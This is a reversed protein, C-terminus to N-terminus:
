MTFKVKDQQQEDFLVTATMKQPQYMYCLILCKYSKEKGATFHISIPRWIIPKKAILNNYGLSNM